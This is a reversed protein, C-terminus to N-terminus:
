IWLLPGSQQSPESKLYGVSLNIDRQVIKCLFSIIIFLVMCNAPTESMPLLIFGRLFDKPNSMCGYFQKHNRREGSETIFNPFATHSVPLNAGGGGCENFQYSVVVIYFDIGIKCLM